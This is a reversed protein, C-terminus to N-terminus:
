SLLCFNALSDFSCPFTPLCVDFEGCDTRGRTSGLTECCSLLGCCHGPPTPACHAHELVALLSRIRGLDACGPTLIAGNGSGCPSSGLAGSLDVLLLGAAAVSSLSPAAPRSSGSWLRGVGASSGLTLLLGRPPCAKKTSRADLAKSPGAARGGRRGRAGAGWKLSRARFPGTRTDPVTIPVPRRGAARVPCVPPGANASGLVLKIHLDLRNQCNIDPPVGLM